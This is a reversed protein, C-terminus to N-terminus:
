AVTEVVIATKNKEESSETDSENLLNELEALNLMNSKRTRSREAKVKNVEVEVNQLMDQAPIEIEKVM